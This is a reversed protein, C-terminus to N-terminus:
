LTDANKLPAHQVTNQGASCPLLKKLHQSCVVPVVELSDSFFDATGLVVYLSNGPLALILNIRVPRGEQPPIIKASAAGFWIM